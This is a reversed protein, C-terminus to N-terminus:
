HVFKVNLPFSVTYYDQYVGFSQVIGFTCFSVMASFELLFDCNSVLSTSFLVFGGMVTLWARIGGEPTTSPDGVHLPQATDAHHKTSLPPDSPSPLAQKNYHAVESHLLIVGDGNTQSM